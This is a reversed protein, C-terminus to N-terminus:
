NPLHKGRVSAKGTTVLSKITRILVPYSTGSKNIRQLRVLPQKDRKHIHIKQFKARVKIGYYVTLVKGEKTAYYETYTGGYGFKSLPIYEPPIRVKTRELLM